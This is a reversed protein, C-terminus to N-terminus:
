RSKCKKSSDTFQCLDEPTKYDENRKDIILDEALAKKLSIDKTKKNKWKTDGGKVDGKRM